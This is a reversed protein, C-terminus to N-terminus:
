KPKEKWIELPQIIIVMAGDKIILPWEMKFEDGLNFQKVISAPVNLDRGPSWKPNKADTAPRLSKRRACKKGLKM